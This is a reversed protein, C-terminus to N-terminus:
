PNQKPKEFNIQRCLPCFIPTISTPQLTPLSQSATSSLKKVSTLAPNLNTATLPCVAVTPTFAGATSLPILPRNPLIM